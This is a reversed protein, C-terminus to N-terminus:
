RSRARRERQRMASARRRFEVSRKALESAKRALIERARQLAKLRTRLDPSRAARNLSEATTPDVLDRIASLTSQWTARVSVAGPTGRGESALGYDSNAQPDSPKNAEDGSTSVKPTQQRRATLRSVQNGGFLAQKGEARRSAASLAVQKETHKIARVLAQLRKKLKEASDALLDAKEEIEKPGDLPHIKVAALRGSSGNGSGGEPMSKKMCADLRRALPAPLRQALAKVKARILDVQGALRRIQKDLSSLRQSTQRAQAMVTRLRYDRAPGPGLKQLKEAATRLRRLTSLLSARRSRTEAQASSAKGISACLREVAEKQGDRAFASGPYFGIGLLLVHGVLASLLACTKRPVLM